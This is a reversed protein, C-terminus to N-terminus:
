ILKPPRTFLSPISLLSLLRGSGMWIGLLTMTKWRTYNKEKGGWMM